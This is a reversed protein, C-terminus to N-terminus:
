LVVGSSETPDDTETVGEIGDPTHWEVNAITFQEVIEHDHLDLLAEIDPTAESQAAGAMGWWAVFVDPAMRLRANDQSTGAVMLEVPDCDFHKRCWRRQRSTWRTDVRRTVTDGDIVRSLTCTIYTRARLDAATQLPDPDTEPTQPM